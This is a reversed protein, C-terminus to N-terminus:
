ADIVARESDFTGDCEQTRTDSLGLNHHRSPRRYRGSRFSPVM